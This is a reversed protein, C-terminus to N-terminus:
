QLESYFANLKAMIQFAINNLLTIRQETLFEQPEYTERQLEETLLTVKIFIQVINLM